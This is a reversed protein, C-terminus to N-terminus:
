RRKGPVSKLVAFDDLRAGAGIATALWRPRRGKGQWEEGSPSRYMIGPQAVNAIEHPRGKPAQAKPSKVLFDDLEAGRELAELLWSPRRGKGTWTRDPGDAYRATAPVEVPPAAPSSEAFAPWGEPFIDGPALELAVIDARIREITERHRDAQERIASARRNIQALTHPM